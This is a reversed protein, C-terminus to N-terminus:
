KKRLHSILQKMNSTRDGLNLITKRGHKGYDYLRNRDNAILLIRKIFSKLNNATVIGTKGPVMYDQTGSMPADTAIICCKTLMAEQCVISLGELSSPFLWINCQNYIENKIEVPPDKWYKDVIPNNPYGDSGFMWLEIGPHKNKLEKVAEFIWEVRKTKRKSGKNFLGGIIIKDYNRIDLPYLEDFDNGPRIIHSEINHSLLKIRLCISNVIVNLNQNRLISVIKREPFNWTEYGRTWTYKKGCRNPLNITPEWSRVGTAIIVDANPIDKENRIKMHPTVLPVWSNQNTGTDIITVDHGLEQLTNASKILTLSGGNPGLGVNMLNFTIKM